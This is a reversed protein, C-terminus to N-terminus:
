ACVCMHISVYIYIYIYVYMCMYTYCIYTHIHIFYPRECASWLLWLGPPYLYQCLLSHLRSQHGWSVRPFQGTEVSTRDVTIWWSSLRLRRGGAVIRRITRLEYRSIVVFVRILRYRKIILYNCNLTVSTWLPSMVFSSKLM